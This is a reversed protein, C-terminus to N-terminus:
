ANGWRQSKAGEGAPLPNPHPNDKQPHDRCATGPLPEHM